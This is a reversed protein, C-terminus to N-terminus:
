FGGQTGRILCIAKPQLVNVSGIEVARIRVSRFPDETTNTQLPASEKWEACLKPVVILAQSATVNNAMVFNIGNLRGVRGNTAAETGLQPFQAGKGVLYTNISRMDKPSIFCTLDSADIDDEAILQMAQGLDDIIAASLGDWYLGTAINVQNITTELTVNTLASYIQDDVSKVVGETIRFLTRSQVNIQNSIIDEWSIDDEFFHKEQITDIRAWDVSNRAPLALRPSGRIANGSQGSLASTTSERTFTNIWASTTNLGLVQKFKYMREAAGKVATDFAQLRLESEEVQVM